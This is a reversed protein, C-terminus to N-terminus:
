SFAAIKRIAVHRILKLDTVDFTYLVALNEAMVMM